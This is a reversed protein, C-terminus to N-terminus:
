ALAGTIVYMLGAGAITLLLAPRSPRPQHAQPLVQSAGIYLLLGTFCALYFLLATDPLRILLSVLAGVVPALMDAMLLVIARRRSNGSALTLTVTNLGDAFDHGIIALGVALGVTADVQYALGIALGDAASHGCLALASLLGVRQGAAHDAHEPGAHHTVLLKEAIHFALFAAVFAVMVLRPEIGTTSTLDFLEPLLDFGVVGLVVGGTLGLILHLWRQYRLAFVGGAATSAVTVLALVVPM